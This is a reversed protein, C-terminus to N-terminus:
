GLWLTGDDLPAESNPDSFSSQALPVDPSLGIPQDQFASLVRELDAEPVGNEDGSVASIAPQVVPASGPGAPGGFVIYVEGKRGNAGGADIAVDDFGDGNIDGAAAVTRGSTDNTSVGDLRFGNSGDLSSASLTAPFGDLSGFVLYSEGARSNGDPDGGFAGVIFDEIGDGNFDGAAS